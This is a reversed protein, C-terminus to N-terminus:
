KGNFVAKVNKHLTATDGTATLDEGEVYFKRSKGVITVKNDSFLENKTADWRLKRTLIDYDKTAAKINGEIKLDKSETNYTGSDSTLTLDKAPFFIRLATLQVDQGTVFVARQASLTFSTAGGKKQVIGVDEMYSNDGLKLKTKMDSDQFFYLTLIALLGVGSLLFLVKKM